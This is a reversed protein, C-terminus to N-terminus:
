VAVQEDADKSLLDFLTAYEVETEMHFGVGWVAWIRRKYVTDLWIKQGTITTVPLWAYTKRWNYTGPGTTIVHTKDM